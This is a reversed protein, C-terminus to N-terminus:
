LIIGPSKVMQLVISKNCTPFKTVRFFPDTLHLNISLVIIVNLYGGGNSIFIIFLEPYIITM